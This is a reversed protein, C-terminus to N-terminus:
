RAGNAHDIKNSKWILGLFQSELEPADLLVVKGSNFFPECAEYIESKTLESIAYSIGANTFAAPFSEGGYHDGTVSSIRYSKLVAAFKPVCAMPDFPPRQGQSM